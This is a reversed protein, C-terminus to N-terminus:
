RSLPVRGARSDHAFSGQPNGVPNVHSTFVLHDIGAGAAADIAARHQWIRRGIADTSMLLMRHGGAFAEPLTAPDDLDGYRVDAGRTGFEHLAEPHRTVLILDEPAVRELLQEAVLHGLRGAAGTVILSMSDRYPAWPAVAGVSSVSAVTCSALLV